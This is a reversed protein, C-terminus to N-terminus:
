ALKHYLYSKCISGTLKYPLKCSLLVKSCCSLFEQKKFLAPENRDVSCSNKKVVTILSDLDLQSFVGLIGMQGIQKTLSNLIKIMLFINRVIAKKLNGCATKERYKKM